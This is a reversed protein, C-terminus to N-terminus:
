NQVRLPACAFLCFILAYCTLCFHLLFASSFLLSFYRRFCILTFNGCLLAKALLATAVSGCANLAKVLTTQSHRRTVASSISCTKRTNSSSRAAATMAYLHLHQIYVSSFHINSWKTNFPLCTLCVSTASACAFTQSAFSPALRLENAPCLLISRAFVALTYMHMCAIRIVLVTLQLESRSRSATRFAATASAKNRPADSWIVPETKIVHQLIIDQLSSLASM